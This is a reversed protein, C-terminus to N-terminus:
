PEIAGANVPGGGQFSAKWGVLVGRANQPAASSKAQLRLRLNQGVHHVCREPNTLSAWDGVIGAQPLDRNQQPTQGQGEGGAPDSNNDWFLRWLLTTATGAAAIGAVRLVRALEYDKCSVVAVDTWNAAVAVIAQSTRFQRAGPPRAFEPFIFCERVWGTAMIAANYSWDELAAQLEAPSMRDWRRPDPPCNILEGRRRSGPECDGPFRSPMYPQGEGSYDLENQWNM